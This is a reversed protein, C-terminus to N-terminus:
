TSTSPTASRGSSPACHRKAPRAEAIKKDYCARGDSHRYRVQTVAAMRIAHNLRRNGRMSLRYVIRNGSSV